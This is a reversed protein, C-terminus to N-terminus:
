IQSRTSDTHQRRYARLLACAAGPCLYANGSAAAQVAAFLDSSGSQTDLWSRAGARLLQLFANSELERALVVIGPWRSATRISRILGKTHEDVESVDLIVVDPEMETLKRQVQDMDWDVGRVHWEERTRLLACLGERLLTFSSVVLIRTGYM